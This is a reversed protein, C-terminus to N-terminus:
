PATRAVARVPSSPVPARKPARPTIRAIKTHSPKKTVQTPVRKTESWTREISSIVQTGGTMPALELASGQGNALAMDDQLARNARHKVLLVSGGALALVAAVASALVTRKQMSM